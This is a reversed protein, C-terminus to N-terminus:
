FWVEIENHGGFGLSGANRFAKAWERSEKAQARLTSATMQVAPPNSGHSAWVAMDDYRQAASELRQALIEPDVTITTM